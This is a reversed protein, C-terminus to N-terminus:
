QPYYYGPQQPQQSGYQSGYGSQSDYCPQSNYGPQSLYASQSNYDPQSYASQSNYDPQSNYGLQPQQQQQQYSSYPDVYSQPPYSFNSQPYQQSYDLSNQQQQQYCPQQQQQQQDSLTAYYDLAPWLGYQPDSAVVMRYPTFHWDSGTRFFKGAVFGKEQLMNQYQGLEAHFLKVFKHRGDDGDDDDDNDNIGRTGHQPGTHYPGHQPGTHYPSSSSEEFDDEDDSDDYQITRTGGSAIQSKITEERMMPLMHLYPRSSHLDHPLTVLICGFLIQTCQKPVARLDFIINESDGLVTDVGTGDNDGTHTIAKGFL